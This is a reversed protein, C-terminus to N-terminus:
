KGSICHYMGILEDDTLAGEEDTNNAEILNSLLDDREVKESAIRDRIIEKM